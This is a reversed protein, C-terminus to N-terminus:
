KQRGDPLIQKDKPSPTAPANNKPNKEPQGYRDTNEQGSAIDAAAQEIKARPESAQSDPSEDRENPQRASRSKGVPETTTIKEEGTNHQDPQNIQHM